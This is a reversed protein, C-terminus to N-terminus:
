IQHHQNCYFSLLWPYAADCNESNYMLPSALHMGPLHLGSTAQDGNMLISSLPRAKAREAATQFANM